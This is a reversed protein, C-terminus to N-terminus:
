IKMELFRKLAIVQAITSSSLLILKTFSFLLQYGDLSITQTLPSSHGRIQCDGVAYSLLENKIKLMRLYRSWVLRQTSVAIQLTETSMGLLSALFMMTVDFFFVKKGNIHLSTFVPHKTSNHVVLLSSVTTSFEHASYSTCAAFRHTAFKTSLSNNPLTLRPM